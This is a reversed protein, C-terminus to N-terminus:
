RGAIPRCDAVGSIGRLKKMLHEEDTTLAGTRFSISVPAVGDVPINQNITLVNAGARSLKALVTSLVGPEDVLALSYTAIRDGGDGSYPRVADKYKYFASRSIGASRAAESANKVRGQALLKKAEIVRGFVDPLVDADVILREKNEAM